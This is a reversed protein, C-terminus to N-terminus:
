KAILARKLVYVQGETLNDQNGNAWSSWFMLNDAGYQKGCQNATTFSCEPTDSIPDHYKPDPETTHFLGLFHGIEHGITEGLLQDNLNSNKIHADLSILVGNRNGVLGQSGPIGASIGLSNSYEFNTFYVNVRDSLGISVMDSTIAHNFDISVVNYKEETLTITESVDLTVGNNSYISKMIDLAPIISDSTFTSGTIYPQVKIRPINSITGSRTTLCILESDKVKFNWTGIRVQYSQNDSLPFFINSYNTTRWGFGGPDLISNEQEGLPNKFEEFIPTQNEKNLAHVLFSITNDSITFNGSGSSISITDNGDPCKKKSDGSSSNSRCSISCLCVIFIYLYLFFYKNMPFM